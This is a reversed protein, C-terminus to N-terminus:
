RGASGPAWSLTAAHRPRPPIATLADAVEGARSAPLCLRRPVWGADRTPASVREWQRVHAQHGMGALVALADDTTAPPPRHLDHFQVWLPDLWAMPHEALMEVVVGRQAAATLAALFPPLDVVNHLVHHSVVVEATGADAAAGPWRGAVTRSAM